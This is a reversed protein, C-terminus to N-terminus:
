KTASYEIPVWTYGQQEARVHGLGPFPLHAGAIWLKNKAADALIEKRTEIAKSSDTDYEIAVEPHALQISYSHVIDGWILLKQDNSTFLYSSHGPTHGISPVVQVGTLLTDGTNYIKLKNNKKYPAVSDQAINFVAQVNAPAQKTKEESLWFDAEAKSAYVTANPFAAIGDKNIGCAHDPHLHTLLVIDIQEATYGAAKINNQIEGSTPGFCKAAGADVLILHDGTNVLFGNIATQVDNTPDIFMKELLQKAEKDNINKLLTTPIQTHGDYLATVEFDGLMMRYYGPVQTAQKPVSNTEALCTQITFCSIITAFSFVLSKRLFPNNIM